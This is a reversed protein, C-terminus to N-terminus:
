SKVNQKIIRILCKSLSQSSLIADDIRMALAHCNPDLTCAIIGEHNADIAHLRFYDRRNYTLVARGEQMAFKLVEYDPVSEGGYGREQITVVDHGLQRLEVVVPFSFNEDAYLQAM